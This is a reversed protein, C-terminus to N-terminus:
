TIYLDNDRPSGVWYEPYGELAHQSINLLTSLCRSQALRGSFQRTSEFGFGAGML